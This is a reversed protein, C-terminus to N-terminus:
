RRITPILAVFGVMLSGVNVIRLYLNGQQFFIALNLCSLFSIPLFITLM